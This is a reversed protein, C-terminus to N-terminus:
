QIYIELLEIPTDESIDDNSTITVELFDSTPNDLTVSFWPPSRGNGCCTGESSCQKGDWLPDNAYLFYNISTSNPNGSECYYNNGVFSLPTSSSGSDCPCATDGTESSDAAFTWVHKRPSGRTIRVGDVYVHDITQFRGHHFGDPHGVQYGIIRGCMKTYMRGGVSYVVSHGNNNSNLPRGCVRVGNNTYERWRSPCSQSPDTMNLYAIRIWEGAGCPHPSELSLANVVSEKLAQRASVRQQQSPCSRSGNVPTVVPPITNHKLSIQASILHIGFLLVAVIAPIMRLYAFFSEVRYFNSLSHIVLVIRVVCMRGIIYGLLLQM